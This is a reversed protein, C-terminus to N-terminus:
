CRDGWPGEKTVILLSVWSRSIRIKTPLASITDYMFCKGKNLYLWSAKFIHFLVPGAAKNKKNPM